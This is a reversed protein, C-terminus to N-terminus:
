HVRLRFTVAHVIPMGFRQLAAVALQQFVLQSTSAVNVGVDVAEVANVVSVLAAFAQGLTVSELEVPQTVKCSVLHGLAIVPVTGLMLQLVVVNQQVVQARTAALVVVHEAALLVAPPSSVLHAQWVVAAYHTLDLKTKLM